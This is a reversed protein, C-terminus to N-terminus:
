AEATARYLRMLELHGTVTDLVAFTAGTFVGGLTGPNAIIVGEGRIWPKHTHGYFVFNYKKRHAQRVLRRALEETKDPRHVFAIRTSTDVGPTQYDWEGVEEFVELNKHRKAVEFFEERRIEMNGNALKIPGSFNEALWELTEPTTVDGCCIIGYIGLGKAVALFKELNALNDHIDSIIALKM